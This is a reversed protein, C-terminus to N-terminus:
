VPKEKKRPRALAPLLLGGAANGALVALIFVAMPGSVCGAAAYFLDAISHEFGSLVFTPICFLIGLPSRQDRYICVSLYVMVGCFAARILTQGVSQAALKGECLAAASAAVSPLAYRVAAGCVATGALNGALGIFLSALAGRSHDDLLYCVRGTFLLYGRMCITLLAVSFLLAGVTRNECSLYVIGGVSILLGAAVGDTFDRLM